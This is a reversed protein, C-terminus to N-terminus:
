RKGPIFMRRNKAYRKMALYLCFVGWTLLAIRYAAIAINQKEVIWTDNPKARRMSPNTDRRFWGPPGAAKKESTEIGALTAFTMM